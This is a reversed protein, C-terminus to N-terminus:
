DEKKPGFIVSAHCMPCSDQVYLWKKLCPTHFFHGCLTVKVRNGDATLDQYCICCVDTVNRMDRHDATKLIELKKAALWRRKFSGWGEKAQLWINCYAHICIMFSRVAGSQEFLLIWLGNFLLLIAFIFEMVAGTGRVFYVMDDLNRLGGALKKDMMFLLYVQLWGNM